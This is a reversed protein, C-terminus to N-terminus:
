RRCRWGWSRRLRIDFDLQKSAKAIALESSKLEETLADLKGEAAKKEAELTNIHSRVRELQQSHEDGSPSPDMGALLPSLGVALVCTFVRRIVM